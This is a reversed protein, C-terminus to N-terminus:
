RLTPVSPVASRFTPAVLASTELVINIHQRELEAFQQDDDAHQQNSGSQQQHRARPERKKAQPPQGTINDVSALVQLEVKGDDRPQQQAYDQSQHKPDNRM